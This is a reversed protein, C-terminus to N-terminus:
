PRTLDMVSFPPHFVLLVTGAMLLFGIWGMAQHLFSRRGQLEWVPKSFFGLVGGVLFGAIHAANDAGIFFGFVVTYVMWNVMQGRVERGIATGDRQGWGAAVGILGMLAGSAGAAIGYLGWIESGLNALIGTVMFFFLMRGRGFMEEVQPGIQMLAILNFALHWIGIHLFCATALRWVEGARVLPPFHAGFHILTDSSFGLLGAGPEHLMMAIYILLIVGALISSVSNFHPAVLGLRRVMQGFHTYLAAGCRSCTKNGRDEVSGCSPCIKHRYGVSEKKVQARHKTDRFKERLGMLKWRVRVPNLGIAGAWRTLSEIWDHPNEDPM